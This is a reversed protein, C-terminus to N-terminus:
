FYGGFYGGGDSGNGNGSFYGSNGSPLGSSYYNNYDGESIGLLTQAIDSNVTPNEIEVSSMEYGREVRFDVVTLLPRLYPRKNSFEKM